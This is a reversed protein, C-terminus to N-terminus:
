EQILEHVMDVDGAGQSLACTYFSFLLGSNDEAIQNLKEIVAPCRTCKTHWLDVIHYTSSSSSAFELFNIERNNDSLVKISISPLSTM